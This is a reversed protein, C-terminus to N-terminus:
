ALCRPFQVVFFGVCGFEAGHGFHLHCIGREVHGIGTQLQVATIPIQRVIADFFYDTIQTYM